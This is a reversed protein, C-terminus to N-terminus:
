PVVVRYFVAGNGPDAVDYYVNTPSTSSVDELLPFFGLTLDTSKDLQYTTGPESAWVVEVYGDLTPLAHVVRLVSNSDDPNCNAYWESYDDMGDGDLDGTDSLVGTGGFNEREYWDPIGDGDSDYVGFQATATRSGSPLADAYAVQVTDGERVQIRLSGPDSSGFTFSPNGSGAGSVFVESDIGDEVLTLDFGAGDTDSTLRVTLAEAILPDTNLDRDRVSILMVENTYDYQASDLSVEGIYGSDAQPTLIITESRDSETGNIDYAVVSFRYAVGNTLGDVAAFGGADGVDLWVEDSGGPDTGYFIACGLEHGSTQWNLYAIGNGGFGTLNTPAPVGLGVEVDGTIVTSVGDISIRCSANYVMATAVPTYGFNRWVADQFPGWKITDTEDNWIGGHSVNTVTLGSPLFEEVTYCAADMAPRAVIEVGVALSWNNTVEHYATDWVAIRVQTDGTTDVPHGNFSASGDLEYDGTDGELRYTLSRAGGDDLYPGWKITRSSALWRGGGGIELPTVGAPLEEMVSHCRTGTGPTVDLRVEPSPTDNRTITRVILGGAPAPEEGYFVDTPDSNIMWEKFAQARIRTITLLHIPGNYETSAADPASGDLTYRITAGPTACVLTVDVPFNGTPAPSVQPTAVKEITNLDVVLETEGTTEVPHGDVSGSGDLTYTASQGSAKYGLSRAVGDTFPGWRLTRNTEVWIGGDTIDYPTLGVPLVEDVSYCEPPSATLTVDLTVAPLVTANDAISRVIQMYDSGGPLPVAYYAGVAASPTMGSKFTRARLTTETTIHLPAAYLADGADPETGNLTYRIEANTTTCTITVDVPLSTSSHPSFVPVAVQPPPVPPDGSGAPLPISLNMNTKGGYGDISWRGSVAHTGSPGYATYALQAMGNTNIFPGWRVINNSVDYIGSATINSAVILPPLQEEYAGCAQENSDINLGSLMIQVDAVGGTVDSVSHQIDLGPYAGSYEGFWASAAASPTYDPRYGRVRVWGASVLEVVGTYLTSSPMPDTGDLTYRLETNTTTCSLTVMVPPNTSGPPSITPLAVQPPPAPPPPGNTSGIVVLTSFLTYEFEGDAWVTGEPTYSGDMGSVRYTLSTTSPMIFPGWRFAHRDSLYVGNASPLSNTSLMYPLREEVAQCVGTSAFTLDLTVLAEGPADNTASRTFAFDVAHSQSALAFMLLGAVIWRMYRGSGAPEPARQFRTTRGGHRRWRPPELAQQFCATCNARQFRATRSRILVLGKVISTM